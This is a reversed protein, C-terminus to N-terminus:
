WWLEQVITWRSRHYITLRTCPTEAAKIGMPGVGLRSFPIQPWHAGKDQPQKICPKVMASLISHILSSTLLHITKVDLHRMEDSHRLERRGSHRITLGIRQSVDLLDKAKRVTIFNNGSKPSPFREDISEQMKESGGSESAESM